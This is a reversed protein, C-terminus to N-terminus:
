PNYLLSVILQGVQALSQPSCKDPTDELTHWYKYNFDIIDICPIGVKLLPMHDDTVEYGPTPIFANLALMEAHSWVMKVINPAYRLSNQEQYIQLDKDGVMDLLLGFKPRYNLAANQAFHQSGLAYTNSQGEVGADEGDFFVIDVGYAPEQTHILRAIELLVAVGSAGDNAGPIPKSRNEPRPDQDAMPRSDWHACLLVREPKDLWFSAVINTMTVSKNLLALRGLFPQMTVRGGYKKLESALYDLCKNHAPTGPVRPGFDVQKTLYQFALNGDFQPLTAPGNHNCFLLGPIILWIIGYPLWLKKIDLRRKIEEFPM